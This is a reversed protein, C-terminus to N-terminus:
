PSAKINYGNDVTCSLNNNKDLTGSVKGPEDVPYVKGKYVVSGKCIMDGTVNYTKLDLWGTIKGSIEYRGNVIKKTGPIKNGNKDLESIWCNGTSSHHFSGNISGDTFFITITLPHSELGAVAGHLTVSSVEPKKQGGIEGITKNPNGEQKTSSDPLKFDNNVGVVPLQINDTNDPEKKITDLLSSPKRDIIDTFDDGEKIDFALYGLFSFFEFAGPYKELM